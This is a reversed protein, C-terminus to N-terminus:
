RPDASTRQRSRGSGPRKASRLGAGWAPAVALVLSLFSALILAGKYAARM